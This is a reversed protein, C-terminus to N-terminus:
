SGPIVPLKKSKEQQIFQGAWWKYATAFKQV